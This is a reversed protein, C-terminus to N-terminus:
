DQTKQRQEPNGHLRGDNEDGVDVLQALLSHANAGGCPFSRQKPETGDHHRRQYRAESQQRGSKGSADSRIRLPREGDDDNGTEDGPEEDPEEDIGGYQSARSGRVPTRFGCPIAVTARSRAAETPAASSPPRKGMTSPPSQLMTSPGISARRRRPRSPQTKM